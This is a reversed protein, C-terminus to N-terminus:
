ENEADNNIKVDGQSNYVVNADESGDLEYSESYTDNSYVYSYVWYVNSTVLSIILILIIIFDRLSNRKITDILIMDHENM